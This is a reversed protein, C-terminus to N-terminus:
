NAQERLEQAIETLLLRMEGLVEVARERVDPSLRVRKLFGSLVDLLRSMGGITQTAQEPPVDGDDPVDPAPASEALEELFHQKVSECDLHLNDAAYELVARWRERFAKADVFYQFDNLASFEERVDMPYFRATEYYHRVTRGSKGCFHGIAQFIRDQSVFVDQGTTRKIRYNRFGQAEAERILVGAADGITFANSKNSNCITGLLNQLSDPVIEADTIKEERTPVHPFTQTAPM